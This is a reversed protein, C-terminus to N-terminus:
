AVEKNSIEVEVEEVKDVVVIQNTFKVQVVVDVITTTQLGVGHWPFERHDSGM